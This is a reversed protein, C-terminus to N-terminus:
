VDTYKMIENLKEVVNIINQETKLVCFLTDDGAITGIIESKDMADLAAGVAMAMGNLTKIVLINQAYDISVVADKFIRYIRDLFETDLHSIFDYKQKGNKGTIKTLSLERIDRSITPQTILFGMDRLKSMLEEQTEIDNNKIIEVITSQRKFKM